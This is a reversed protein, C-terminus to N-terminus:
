KSLYAVPDSINVTFHVCRIIIRLSVRISTPLCVPPSPAQSRGILLRPRVSIMPIAILQLSSHLRVYLYQCFPGSSIGKCIM